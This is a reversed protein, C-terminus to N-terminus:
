PATFWASTVPGWTGGSDRGRVYVVHRGAALGTTSRTAKIGESKANFAGDTATMAVAVGGSWPPVDLYYEGANINQTAPRSVSGTASGYANDNATGNITVTTGSLSTSAATIPPGAATTYPTRANKALSLLSGQILPWFTSDQCSYAPTFGSCTGSAPGIEITFGPTGLQGYIHDDTTGSTSYLIEPGTGTQYGNYYSTRFALSRLGANNPSLTTTWGWPMLTLNSYSHLSLLTGSTTSSAADTDASGRTDAFLQSFLGELAQQEPESAASTGRYTQDCPATSTGVGGWKFTANRNLDVGAQNSSTPPTSCLSGASTNANKRQLYPSNGGTEVIDRGDPNVVPIVWLEQSDLLTTVDPLVGYNDVLYDIWRWAMEATSLERAHIAAMVVFRPKPSSPSLACDGTVSKTICLAQLDHGGLGQQKRWSDGFDVLQVLDPHASTVDAAHQEHAVVTRYGGDFTPYVGPVKPTVSHPQVQGSDRGSARRLVNEIRVAFQAARLRRLITADGVVFYDRGERREVLDYGGNILRNVQQQTTATVRLLYSDASAPAGLLPADAAGSAAPATVLALMVAAPALWLRRSRASRASFLSGRLHRLRM